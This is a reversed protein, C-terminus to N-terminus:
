GVLVVLGSARRWESARWRGAHMMWEVWWPEAARGGGGGHWGTPARRRSGCGSGAGAAKEGGCNRVERKRGSREELRTARKTRERERAWTPVSGRDERRRSGNNQTTSPKNPQPSFPLVSMKSVRYVVVCTSAASGAEHIVVCACGGSHLTYVCAVVSIPYM